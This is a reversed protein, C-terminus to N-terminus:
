VPRLDNLSLLNARDRLLREFAIFFGNRNSIRTRENIEAMEGEPHFFNANTSLHILGNPPDILDNLVGQDSRSCKNLTWQANTGKAIMSLNNQVSDFSQDHLDCSSWQCIM